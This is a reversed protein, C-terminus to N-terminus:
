INLPGAEYVPKILLLKLGSSATTTVTQMDSMAIPKSVSQQAGEIWSLHEVFQGWLSTHDLFALTRICIDNYGFEYWENSHTWDCM